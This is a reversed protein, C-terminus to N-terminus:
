KSENFSMENFRPLPSLRMEHNNLIASDMMEEVLALM